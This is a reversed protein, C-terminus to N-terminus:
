FIELLPVGGIKYMIAEFTNLIGISTSLVFNIRNKKNLQQLQYFSFSKTRQKKYLLFVNHLANNDESYNITIYLVNGKKKLNSDIQYIEVHTFYRKKLFFYSILLTLKSIYATFTSNRKLLANKLSCYFSGFIFNPTKIRLM